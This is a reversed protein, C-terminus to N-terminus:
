SPMTNKRINCRDIDLVSVVIFHLAITAHDFSPLSISFYRASDIKRQKFYIFFHLSKKDQMFMYAVFSDDM